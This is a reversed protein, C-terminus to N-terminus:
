ACQQLKALSANKAAIVAAIITRGRDSVLYRRTGEIKTILGHARLLRLSRTVSASAKRREAPDDSVDPHLLRVLDRNRLSNAIFEGRGIAALLTM